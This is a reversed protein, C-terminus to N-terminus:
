APHACGSVPPYVNNGVTQDYLDATIAGFISPATSRAANRARGLHRRHDAGLREHRRVGDLRRVYVAVPALVSAEASM